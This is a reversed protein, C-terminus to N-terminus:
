TKSFRDHKKRNELSVLHRRKSDFEKTFTEVQQPSGEIEVMALRMITNM